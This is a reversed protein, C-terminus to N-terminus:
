EKEGEFTTTIGDDKFSIELGEKKALAIIGNVIQKQNEIIKALGNFTLEFSEKIEEDKM